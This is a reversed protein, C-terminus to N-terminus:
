LCRGDFIIGKPNCYGRKHFWMHYVGNKFLILNEIRNDDKIENIHHPIEEPKLYRGIQNEVVLRHEFIYKENMVFPHEPKYILIYGTSLKCRGGNWHSNNKGFRNPHSRRMKDKTEESHKKGYFPNNEGRYFLSRCQQCRKTTKRDVKKGCDICKYM